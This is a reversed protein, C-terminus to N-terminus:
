RNGDDDYGKGGGRTRGAIAPGFLWGAVLLLASNLAVPVDYTSVTADIVLSVIWAVVIIWGFLIRFRDANM